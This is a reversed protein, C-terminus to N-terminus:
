NIPRESPSVKEGLKPNIGRLARLFWDKNPQSRLFWVFDEANEPEISGICDHILFMQQNIMIESLSYKSCLYEMKLIPDTNIITNYANKINSIARKKKAPITTKSCYKLAKERDELLELLTKKQGNPQYLVNLFPNKRMINERKKPDCLKMMADLMQSCKFQGYVPYENPNTASNWILGKHAIEKETEQSNIKKYYEVLEPRQPLEQQFVSIIHSSAFKNALIEIMYNDHNEKYVTNKQQEKPDSEFFEEGKKALNYAKTFVPHTSFFEKAMIIMNPSVNSMDETMQKIMRYQNAHNIEHECNFILDLIQQICTTKTKPTFIKETSYVIEEKEDQDRNSILFAAIFSDHPKKETFSVGIHDLKLDKLRLKTYLYVAMMVEERGPFEGELMSSIVHNVIDACEKEYVPNQIDISNFRQLLDEYPITTSNNQKSLNQRTEELSSFVEWPEGSKKSIQRNKLLQKLYDLIAM